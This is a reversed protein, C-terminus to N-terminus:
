VLDAITQSKPDFNIFRQVSPMFAIPLFACLIAVGCGAILLRISIHEALVGAVAFALPMAVNVTMSQLALVKGRRDQPISAQLVGNVFTNLLGNSVGILVAIPLMVLFSRVSSIVVIGAAFLIGAPVFLGFRIRPPVAVASLVALGAAMGGTLVAMFVGYRAPGLGPTMEFLPLVLMLVMGAFFNVLAFLLLAVRVGKMELILLFGARLDSVVDFARHRQVVRPISIFAETVASALYSGANVAFMLPAGLLGYLIGGTANGVVGTAAQVIQMLSNAQVVREPPVIDPIASDAAPLFVAACVGLVVGCAFLMWVELIGMVAAVAVLGVVAGRILDTLVILRKRDYRDAVVGAFPSVLVRPLLTAAMIGGMLATSGTTQLVWFGLALEYVFDGTM